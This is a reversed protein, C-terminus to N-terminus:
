AYAPVRERRAGGLLRYLPLGLLKAKLDWIAMDIAGLTGRPARARSLRAHIADSDRADMGVVAAGLQRRVLHAGPVAGGGEGWGVLGSESTVRVFLTQRVPQLGQGDGVPRPLTCYVPFPEVGRTTGEM